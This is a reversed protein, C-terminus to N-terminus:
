VCRSTYLLCGSVNGADDRQGFANLHAHRAIVDVHLDLQDGRDGDLLVEAESDAFTTTSNAGADDDGDVLVLNVYFLPHKPMRKKNGVINAEYEPKTTM